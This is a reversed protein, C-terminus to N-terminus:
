MLEHRLQAGVFAVGAGVLLYVALQVVTGGFPSPMPKPNPFHRSKITDEVLQSRAQDWLAGQGCHCLHYSHQLQQQLNLNRESMSNWMKGSEFEMGIVQLKSFAKVSFWPSTEFHKSQNFNSKNECVIKFVGYVRFLQFM